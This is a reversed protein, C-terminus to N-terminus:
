PGSTEESRQWRPDDGVNGAGTTMHNLKLWISGPLEKRRASINASGFFFSGNASRDMSPEQKKGEAATPGSVPGKSSSLGQKRGRHSRPPSGTGTASLTPTKDAMIAVGGKEVSANLLVLGTADSLGDGEVHVADGPRLFVTQLTPEFLPFRAITGDKLVIGDIAETPTVLYRVFRGDMRTRSTPAVTRPQSNGPQASSPSGYVASSPFIVLFIISRGLNSM